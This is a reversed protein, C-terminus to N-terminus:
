DRFFLIYCLFIHISCFVARSNAGLFNQFVSWVGAMRCQSCVRRTSVSTPNAIRYSQCSSFRLLLNKSACATCRVLIVPGSRLPQLFLSMFLLTCCMTPMQRSCLHPCVLVEICKVCLCMLNVYWLVCYSCLFPFPYHECDFNSCFNSPSPQQFVPWAFCASLTADVVGTAYGLQWFGFTLCTHQKQCVGLYIQRLRADVHRETHPFAKGFDTSGWHNRPRHLSRGFVLM